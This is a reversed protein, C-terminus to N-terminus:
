KATRRIRIQDRTFIPMADEDGAIAVFYYGDDSIAKIIGWEGNYISYKDVIDVRKELNKLVNAM